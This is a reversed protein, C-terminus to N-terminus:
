RIGEIAARIIAVAEDDTMGASTEIHAAVRRVLECVRYPRMDRFALLAAGHIRGTETAHQVRQAVSFLHQYTRAIPLGACHRAQSAAHEKISNLAHRASGTERRTIGALLAIQQTTLPAHM